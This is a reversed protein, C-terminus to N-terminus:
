MEPIEAKFFFFFFFFRRYLEIEVDDTFVHPFKTKACEVSTEKPLLINPFHFTQRTLLLFTTNVEADTFLPPHKIIQKQPQM